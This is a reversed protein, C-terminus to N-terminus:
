PASREPSIADKVPELPHEPTLGASDITLEKALMGPMGPMEQCVASIPWGPDELRTVSPRAHTVTM